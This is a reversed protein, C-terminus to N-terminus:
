TGDRVPWVWLLDVAKQDSSLYGGELYATWAYTPPQDSTSSWYPEQVTAVVGTAWANAPSDAFCYGDKGAIEPPDTCSRFITEWEARTPLRWDGAQSHDTLGCQGDALDAAFANAEYWRMQATCSANKLWLLGTQTDHVTGNGCDIFRDADDPDGLSPFCPPDARTEAIAGDVVIAGGSGAHSKAAADPEEAARSMSASCAICSFLLALTKVHPPKPRM